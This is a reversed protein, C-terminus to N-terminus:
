QKKAKERLRKIHEKYREPDILEYVEAAEKDRQKRELEDALSKKQWEELKSLDGDVIEKIMKIGKDIDKYRIESMGEYYKKERKIGVIIEEAEKNYGKKKLTEALREKQSLVLGTDGRIGKLVLLIGEKVKGEEILDYGRRYMVDPHNPDLEYLKKKIKEREEGRVMYYYEHYAEPRHPAISIAKKLLERGKNLYINLKELNEVKTGIYIIGYSWYSRGLEVYAEYFNPELRIAKELKNIALEFDEEKPIETDRILHSAETLLTKAEPIIDQSYIFNAEGRM